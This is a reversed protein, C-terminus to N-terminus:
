GTVFGELGAPAGIDERRVDAVEAMPPGRWLWRELEAVAESSGIAIVEVGGDALNNASGCLGLRLAQDRTSARFWVGQVKGAVLFRAAIM